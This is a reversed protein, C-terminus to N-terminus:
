VEPTKKEEELQDRYDHFSNDAHLNGAGRTWFFLIKITRTNISCDFAGSAHKKKRERAEFIHWGADTELSNKKEGEELSDPIPESSPRGQDHRSIQWQQLFSKCNIIVHYISTHLM